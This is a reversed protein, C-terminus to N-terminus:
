TFQPSGLSRPTDSIVKCEQFSTSRSGHAVRERGNVGNVGNEGNVENVENVGNVQVEENL